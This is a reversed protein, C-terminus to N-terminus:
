ARKQSILTFGQCPPGGILMSLEGKKIGARRMLDKGSLKTIDEQIIQMRPFSQAKNARLTACAHKNSEVAAIVEFGASQFGASFGGAGAFLDICTPKKKTKM